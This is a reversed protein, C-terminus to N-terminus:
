KIFDDSNYPMYQIVVSIYPPERADVNGRVVYRSTSGLIDCVEYRVYLDPPDKVVM